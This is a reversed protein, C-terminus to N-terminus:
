DLNKDDKAELEERQTSSRIRVSHQHHYHGHSDDTARHSQEEENEPRADAPIQAARSPDELPSKRIGQGNEPERRLPQQPPHAQSRCPEEPCSPNREPKEPTRTLLHSMSNLHGTPIQTPSSVPLPGYPHDPSSSFPTPISLHQVTLYTEWSQTDDIEYIIM